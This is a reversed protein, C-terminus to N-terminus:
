LNISGSYDKKNKFLMVIDSPSPHCFYVELGFGLFMEGEREKVLLHMIM